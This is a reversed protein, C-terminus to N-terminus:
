ALAWKALKQAGNTLERRAAVPSWPNERLQCYATEIIEVSAIADEETLLPGGEGRIAQAFNEIQSRFAQVKNYGHGFIEWENRSYNLHRSEKWGVSIAGESGYIDFYSARRKDLSWSLDITGIVGDSSRVFMSVTDEVPIKQIRNSEVVHIDSLPGLFYRMLDVSHTGNDILVGGGSIAPNSNWRSNMDVRSTFVNEVLIPDGLVGTSMMSRARIVDEVFRFKSAMTLRVNNKHAAEFMRFAGGMDISLPKECIVHIGQNMLYVCIEAHTAPPTSVIVADLECERAMQEYSEYCALKDKLILRPEERTEAAAVLQADHCHEFAQLYSEAIRGVGVIGFRLKKRVM